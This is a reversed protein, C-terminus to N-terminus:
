SGTDYQRVLPQIMAALCSTAWSHRTFSFQDFGVGSILAVDATIVLPLEGRVLNVHAQRETVVHTLVGLTSHRLPLAVLAALLALLSISCRHEM